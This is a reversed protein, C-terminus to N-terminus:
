APEIYDLMLQVSRKGRFENINPRYVIRMREPIPKEVWDSNFQIADFIPGGYQHALVLKLHRGKLVRHQVKYFVGDFSPEPFQQGWPGSAELLSVTDLTMEFESLEGDTILVADLDSKTLQERVVGDFAKSFADFYSKRITMGAAMAHGGFKSLLEPHRKAILDLADRLHFGDISRGSGKLVPDPNMPDDDAPAFVIVPRHFKEKLRSALIGIVGQHWHPEYLCLGWSMNNAELSLRGLQSDADRKMEQEISKREQNLQDLRRALENARTTDEALLCEIGLSMDDLRGAANLRPGVVFGMDRAGITAINKQALELLARIGPRCRGARIRKLGQNVLIRNNGDLPVLDAITGLAVLDLYEAMNLEALERSEFWDRKRLEARLANLVYFIVGVGAANKSPFDCDPQNPNVIAEADPLSDGPLHHDTVLVKIGLEHAREVGDHSGIGNDVTVILDPKQQAALEVIEPTLGYGFEFRNPVLYQCQNAGMANLVHMALATSTAGDCDFDGVILIRSQHDLADALLNVAASLGKLRSSDQLKKLTLELADASRIGRSLYIRNLFSPVGTIDPQSQPISRRIISKKM